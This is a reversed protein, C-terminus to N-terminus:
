RPHVELRMSQARSWVEPEYMPYVQAPLV